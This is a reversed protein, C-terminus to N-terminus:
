LALYNEKTSERTGKALPVRAHGSSAWPPLVLPRAPPLAEESWFWKLTPSPKQLGIRTCQNKKKRGM